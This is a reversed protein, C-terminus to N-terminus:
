DDIEARSIGKGPTWDGRLVLHHKFFWQKLAKLPSSGRGVLLWGYDDHDEAKPTGVVQHCQNYDDFSFTLRYGAEVDKLLAEFLDEPTVLSAKLETKQQESLDCAVFGKFNTNSYKSRNKLAKRGLSGVRAARVTIVSM